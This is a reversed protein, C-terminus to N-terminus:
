REREEQRKDAKREYDKGSKGCASCVVGGPRRFVGDLCLQCARKTPQIVKIYHDRLEDFTAM